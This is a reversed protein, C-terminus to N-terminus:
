IRSRCSQSAEGHDRWDNIVMKGDLYLRAGDDTSTGIHHITQPPIIKGKWRISFQDEPLGPIPANTGYNFNVMSDIRTVAPKGSLNMNDFYEGTMGTKNTGEM